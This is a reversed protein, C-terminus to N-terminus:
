PAIGSASWYASYDSYREFTGVYTVTSGASVDFGYSLTGGDLTTSTYYKRDFEATKAPGKASTFVINDNNKLYVSASVKDDNQFTFYPFRFKVEYGSIGTPPNWIDGSNITYGPFTGNLVYATATQASNWVAATCAYQQLPTFNSLHGSATFNNTTFKASLSANGNGFKYVYGNITGKTPTGFKNFHYYKNAMPTILATDGNYGTITSATLTGHGDTRLTLTYPAPGFIARATCDEDAFTLNNGQIEAGTSEYNKFIYGANPTATLHAVNGSYGSLADALLTGYGNTLLTLYHPDPTIRYLKHNNFHCKLVEKSM